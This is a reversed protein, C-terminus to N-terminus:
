PYYSLEDVWHTEELILNGNNDYSYIQFGTYISNEDYSEEKIKGNNDYSRISFGEFTGDGDYSEQRTSYGNSDHGSYIYYHSLKGDEDYNEM